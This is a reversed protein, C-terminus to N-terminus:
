RGPTENLDNGLNRKGHWRERAEAVTFVSGTVLVLDKEGALEVARDVAKRVDPIIEPTRNRIWRAIEEPEAGRDMVNHRTIIIEGALPAIEETMARIDKDSSIGLVVILRDYSFGDLSQRLRKMAYPDKACDLMVRPTQQVMEMRGPWATKALGKRIAQEQIGGIAQVAAIACAANEAQHIGSLPVMLEEIRGWSGEIALRGSGENSIRVHNGIESLRAEKQRCVERLVELGDGAAATIVTGRDHIIGAKEKAIEKITRGLINTHELSINTIVSIAPDTINTADLRGGLGVELVAFDAKKEQFYCFAAATIVEFFTPHEFGKNEKMREIAKRTRQMVAALESETIEGRDMVIRETLSSLHPSTFRGTKYGAETLISSIMAVTSGKGSSGGVVITRFSKEPHGLAGALKKMRELGLKAGQNRLSYLYTTMENFNDEDSEM